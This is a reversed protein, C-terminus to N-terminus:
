AAVLVASRRDIQCRHHGKALTRGPAGAAGGRPVLEWGRSPGEAARSQQGATPSGGALAAPGQSLLAADRQGSAAGKQLQAPAATRQAQGPARPCRCCRRCRLGQEWSYRGRQEWCARPAAAAWPRAWAPQPAAQGPRAQRTQNQHHSCQPSGPQAPLPGPASPPGAAPHQTSAGALSQAAGAQGQVAAAHRRRGPLLCCRRPSPHSAPLCSRAGMETVGGAPRAARGREPAGAQEPPRALRCAKSAAAPHKFWCLPAEPAASFWLTQPGPGEMVFFMMHVSPRAQAENERLISCHLRLTRKLLPLISMGYSLSQRTIAAKQM